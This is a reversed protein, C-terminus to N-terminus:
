HDAPQVAVTLSVTQIAGDRLLRVEIRSGIRDAGLFARLAHSGSASHGDLSLLVDGVRMGAREAPGGPTMSVVMRGSPQGARAALSEPVTIPQLAVGLWGRRSTGPATRSPQPVPPLSPTVPMAAARSPQRGVAMSVLRAIATHPVVRVGGDRGIDAMGLLRQNADIVPGGPDVDAAPMDLVLAILEGGTRAVHRVMSLRATPAGDMLAGLALALTGAAADEGCAADARVSVPADLLLCALNADPDRPGPHAVALAGNALVLTYSERPPLAQDSTVVTAGDWVFGTLHRNPGTRIATLWPAAAAVAAAVSESLQSFATPM